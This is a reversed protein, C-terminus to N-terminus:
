KAAPAAPAGTPPPPMKAAADSAAAPSAPATNVSDEGCGTVLVAFVLVLLGSLLRRM